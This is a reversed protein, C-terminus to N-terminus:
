QAKRLHRQKHVVCSCRGDPKGFVNTVFAAFSLTEGTKRLLQVKEVGVAWAVKCQHLTSEAGFNTVRDFQQLADGLGEARRGASWL